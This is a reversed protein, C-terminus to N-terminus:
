TLGTSPALCRLSSSTPTRVFVAWLAAIEMILGVLFVALWLPSYKTCIALFMGSQAQAFYDATCLIIAGLFTGILRKLIPGDIVEGVAENGQLLLPFCTVPTFNSLFLATVTNTAMYHAVSSYGIESVYAECNSHGECTLIQCFMVSEWPLIGVLCLKISLHGPPGTASLAM